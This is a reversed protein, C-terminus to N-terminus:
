SNEFSEIDYPKIKGRKVMLLATILLTYGIMVVGSTFWLGSIDIQEVFLSSFISGLMAGTQLLFSGLSLVSARLPGPTYQNVLTNEAVNGTGLLLYIGGYVIAFIWASKIIALILLVCGLFVRSISYIRWQRGPFKLLLRRCLSNGTASLFFGVFSLIGLVWTGQSLDSTRLYAPQWYTEIPMVLFGTFLMGALIFPFDRRSFVTRVGKKLHRILPTREAEGGWIRVERIGFICLGMTVVTLIFRLSINANYADGLCSLFGGLICGLALGTEQLIALRATVDPLCDEGREELAQDVILADLSGSSFARGVGNLIICCFLGVLNHVFFLLGVSLLQCVGSILFVSKRGYLDACIGSPLEFCLVAASYSALLLPLTKLDAGRKLLILNLVPLLIGLSAYNLFIILQKIRSM